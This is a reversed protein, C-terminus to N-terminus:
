GTFSAARVVPRAAKAVKTVKKVKVHQQVAAPKKQATVGLVAGAAVNAVANATATVPTGSAATATATAVNTYSTGDAAVVTHSCTFTLSKGTELAQPGGPALGTCGPDAVSLSVAPGNNTVVIEYYVTEGAKADVPGAVFGGTPGVRELKVLSISAPPAPATPAAPPTPQAPPTTPPPTPTTGSGCNSPRTVTASRAAEPSDGTGWNAKEQVYVTASQASGVAFTGSFSFNNDSGFHGTQTQTQGNTTVWVDVHSNTRGATTAGSDNWATATYSIKGNCDLTARIESHCAAAESALWGAVSLCCALALLRRKV